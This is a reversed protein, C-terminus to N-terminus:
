LTERKLPNLEVAKNWTSVVKAIKDQDDYPLISLKWFDNGEPPAGLAETFIKPGDEQVAPMGFKKVYESIANGVDERTLPAKPDREAEVEAAEDAADQAVTEAGDAHAPDVREEGTSINATTPEAAEDEAIEAKTRRAKGPAPEGRKRTTGVEAGVADGVGDSAREPLKDGVPSGASNVVAQYRDEAYSGVSSGAQPEASHQQRTINVHKPEYGIASLARRLYANANDGSVMDFPVEVEIKLTM